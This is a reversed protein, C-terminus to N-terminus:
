FQKIVDAAKKVVAKKPELRSLKEFTQHGDAVLICDAGMSVAVQHDHDTDGIFLLNDDPHKSRWMLAIDKKGAAKINDVGVVEEFYQSVGLNELQRKLMEIESASIIIQKVGQSKFFELVSQVGEILGAKHERSVYEDVWEKAVDDYNEKEFDFGLKKYGEIIPFMFGSRYKEVSDAEPLGRRKLLVNLSDMGIKVDDLVTGNFDWIVYTYNLKIMKKIRFIDPPGM